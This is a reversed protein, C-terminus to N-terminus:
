EAVWGSPQEPSNPEPQELEPLHRARRAARPRVAAGRVAPVTTEAPMEALTEALTEAPEEFAQTPLEALAELGLSPEDEAPADVAAGAEPAGAVLDCRHSQVDPWGSSAADPAPDAPVM